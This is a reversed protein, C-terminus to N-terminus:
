EMNTHRARMSEGTEGLREKLRLVLIEFLIFMAGEYASGMPLVSDGGLDRAMTQAPIVLVHDALQTADCHEEATLFLIKAGAEKAVGMLATVTSLQGPGASCLLLDGRGLPPTTMAGQVSAQLGLHFLRMTLGQIQLGERGCGYTVIRNAIAIMDITRNIDEPTIAGVVREIESLAQRFDSM